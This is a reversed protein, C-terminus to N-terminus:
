RILTAGDYNSELDNGVCVLRSEPVRRSEETKSLVNCQALFHIKSAM